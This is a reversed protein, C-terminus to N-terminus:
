SWCAISSPRRLGAGRPTAGEAVVAELGAPAGAFNVRRVQRM